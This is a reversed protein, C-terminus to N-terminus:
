DIQLGKRALTSAQTWQNVPLSWTSFVQQTPGLDALERREAGDLGFDQETPRPMGVYRSIDTIRHAPTQGYNKIIVQINPSYESNMLSMVVDHVHVYARLQREATERAHRLTLITAIWLGITSAALVFTFIAIWLTFFAVPDEWTREWLSKHLEGKGNTPNDEKQSQASHYGYQPAHTQQSARWVEFGYGFGFAICAFAAIWAAHRWRGLM